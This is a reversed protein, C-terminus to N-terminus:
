KFNVTRMWSTVHKKLQKRGFSDQGNKAEKANEFCTEVYSKLRDADPLAGHKHEFQAISGALIHCYVHMKGNKNDASKEDIIALLENKM